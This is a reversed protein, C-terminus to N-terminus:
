VQGLFADMSARIMVKQDTSLRDWDNTIAQAETSPAGKTPEEGMLYGVPVGLEEALRLTKTLRARGRIM